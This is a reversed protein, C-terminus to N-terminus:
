RNMEAEPAAEPRFSAHAALVRDILAQTAGLYQQPDFLRDLESAPLQSSFAPDGALIDRLHRNETQARRCAEELLDHAAQRGIRGALAMQVAESFILGHTVDINRRMRESDIELGAVTERLHHLAGAALSIIEPMVEWEANWGGLGREQEQVMATLMTSALAPLRIAAALVVASTVPNRKHPMASSGGRGEGAPEFLEAVETQMQLSIDRAIKGMTGACLALVTAIEAVRDRHTHWAMPPVGLGLEEGLARAVQIGRDGLAALTGAAGGLQLVLVRHRAQDLRHRHRDVADLWGAVRLGFTIPLAQQLWTRGVCATARHRRVLQELSAAFRGLEGGIRDLAGRMQLVFGTDIADQSTAGWHVFGAAEPNAKAVLRTLQKVLPIAINGAPAAAQALASLDFLEARCQAAIAPVAAAPIVGERAEARALAAEFDLMAQVRARDTWLNDVAEWGFLPGLLSVRGNDGIRLLRLLGNGGCRASHREM